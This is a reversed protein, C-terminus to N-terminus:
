SSQPSAGKKSNATALEEALKEMAEILRDLKSKAEDKTKCM